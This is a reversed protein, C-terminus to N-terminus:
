PSICNCSLLEVSLFCHVIKDRRDHICNVLGICLYKKLLYEAMLHVPISSAELTSGLSAIFKVPICAAVKQSPERTCRDEM